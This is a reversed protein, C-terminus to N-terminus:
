LVHLPLMYNKTWTKAYSRKSNFITYYTIEQHIHVSYYTFGFYSELQLDQVATVYQSIFIQPRVLM